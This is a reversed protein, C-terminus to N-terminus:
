GCEKFLYVFENTIGDPHPILIRGWWAPVYNMSQNWSWGTLPLPTVLGIKEGGGIFSVVVVGCWITHRSRKDLMLGSKNNIEKFSVRIVAVRFYRNKIKQCNGLHSINELQKSFILIIFSRYEWALRHTMWHEGTRNMMVMDNWETHHIILLVDCCMYGMHGCHHWVMNLMPHDVRINVSLVQTSWGM